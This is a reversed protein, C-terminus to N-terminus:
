RIVKITGNEIKIHINELFLLSEFPSMPKGDSGSLKIEGSEILNVFFSYGNIDNLGPSWPKFASHESKKFQGNNM